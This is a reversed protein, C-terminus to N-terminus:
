DEDELAKLREDIKRSEAYLERNDTDIKRAKKVKPYVLILNLAAIVIAIFVMILVLLLVAGPGSLAYFVTFLIFVLDIIWFTIFTYLPSFRFGYKNESYLNYREENNRRITASIRRKEDRLSEIENIRDSNCQQENTNSM